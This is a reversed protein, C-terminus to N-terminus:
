CGADDGSASIAGYRDQWDRLAQPFAGAPGASLLFLAGVACALSIRLPTPPKM